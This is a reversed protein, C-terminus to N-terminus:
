AFRMFIPIQSNKKVRYLYTLGSAPILILITVIFIITQTLGKILSYKLICLLAGIVFSSVLYVSLTVIYSANIKKSKHYIHLIILYTIVYLTDQFFINESYFIIYEFTCIISTIFAYPLLKSIKASTGLLRDTILLVIFNIFFGWILALDAYIKYTM